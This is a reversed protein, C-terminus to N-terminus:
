KSPKCFPLTMGSKEVTRGIVYAGCVGGWVTWFDGPILIQPLNAAGKSFYALWPCAVYNILMAGLGVYVITPRARKTYTDGQELEAKIISAKAEIEKQVTQEVLAAQQAALTAAQTELKARETPDVVFQGIIGKIGTLLNGGLIDTLKM